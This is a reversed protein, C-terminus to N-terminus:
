EYTKSSHAKRVKGGSVVIKLEGKGHSELKQLIRLVDEHTLGSCKTDHNSM